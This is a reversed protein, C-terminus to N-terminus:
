VEKKWPVELNLGVLKNEFEERERNKKLKGDGSLWGYKVALETAEKESGSSILKMMEMELRSLSMSQFRYDLFAEWTIPCWKSLVEYGIVKAYSRIEFQAHDDM